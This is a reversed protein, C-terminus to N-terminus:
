VEDNDVVKWSFSEWRGWTPKFNPAGFHRLEVIFEKPNTLNPLRGRLDFSQHIRASDSETNPCCDDYRLMDVPFSFVRNGKPQVKFTTTIYKTM